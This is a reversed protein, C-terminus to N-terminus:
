LVRLSAAEGHGEEVEGGRSKSSSSGRLSAAAAGGGRRPKSSSSRGQLVGELARLLLRRGGQSAATAELFSRAAARSPTVAHPTWFVVRVRFRAPSARVRGVIAHRAVQATPSFVPARDLGRLM